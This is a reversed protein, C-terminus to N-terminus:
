APESAPVETTTESSTFIQDARTGEGPAGSIVFQWNMRECLREVITLGLGADKRSADIGPGSDFVSVRDALAVIDVKGKVTYQFANPVLNGLAITVLSSPAQVSGSDATRVEAEVPKTELLYHYSAVIRKVITELNCTEDKDPHQEQRALLLFTDILMEIDTVAREIRVLPRRIAHDAERSWGKLIEVAGKIVTVPTRLEHSTHSTFECERRSFESIRRLLQNITGALTGVEDPTNFSRLVVNDEDLSLSQVVGALESVPQPHSEIHVTGLDMGYFSRGIRDGYRRAM